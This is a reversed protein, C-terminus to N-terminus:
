IDGKEISELRKMMRDNWPDHHLRGIHKKIDDIGNKTITASRWDLKKIPGGAKAPDFPRRSHKGKVLGDELVEGIEDDM